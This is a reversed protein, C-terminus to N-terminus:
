EDDDIRRLLSAGLDGDQDASLLASAGRNRRDGRQNNRADNADGSSMM